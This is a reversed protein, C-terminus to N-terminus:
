KKHISYSRLGDTNYTNTNTVSAFQSRLRVKRFHGQLQLKLTIYKTIQFYGSRPRNMYGHFANSLFIIILQSFPLQYSGQLVYFM